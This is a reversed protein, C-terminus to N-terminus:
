QASFIRIEGNEYELKIKGNKGEHKNRLITLIPFEQKMFDGMILRYISEGETFDENWKCEKYIIKFDMFRHKGNEDISVIISDTSFIFNLPLFMLASSDKGDRVFKTKYLNVAPCKDQANSNLITL